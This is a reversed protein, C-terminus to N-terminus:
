IENFWCIFLTCNICTIPNTEFLLNDRPFFLCFFSFMGFNLNHELVWYFASNWWSIEIFLKCILWIGIAKQSFHLWNTTSVKKYLWKGVNFRYLHKINSGSDSIILWHIMQKVFNRQFELSIRNFQKTDIQRVIGQCIIWTFSICMSCSAILSIYFCYCYKSKNNAILHFFLLDIVTNVQSRSIDFPIQWFYLTSVCNRREDTTEPKEKRTYHIWM